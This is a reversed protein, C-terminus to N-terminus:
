NASARMEEAHAITRETLEAGGLMRALELTRQKDNLPKISSVTLGNKSTKEISWHHHGQSAVQPLHTICIVQAHEGLQRLKQGVVSATKGGVGSDVEDFVLLPTQSQASIVIQMALSIRSLEGGSATKKLSTLPMGQNASVMFEIHDIGHSPFSFDDLHPDLQSINAEFVGGQMGVEQMQTTIKDSLQQAILERRASVQKAIEIYAKKLQEIKNTLLEPQQSSSNLSELEAQLAEFKSHLESESCHHKRALTIISDIRQQVESLREPNHEIKNLANALGSKAESVQALAGQLLETPEKLNSDHLQLQELQSLSSGLLSEANAQEGDYLEDLAMNIGNILQESNDLRSFEQELEEFENPELALQEFEELQFEILAIRQSNDQNSQSIANLQQITDRLLKATEALKIRKEEDRAIEDILERQKSLNIL